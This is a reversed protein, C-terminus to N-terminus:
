WTPPRRRVSWRIPWWWPWTSGPTISEGIEDRQRFREQRRATQARQRAHNRGASRAYYIRNDAFLRRSEGLKTANGFDNKADHLKPANARTIVALVGPAKEAAATDIRRVRGNAIASQVAVAYAMNELPYDAAYQAAGTIKLRGDVRDIPQEIVTSM